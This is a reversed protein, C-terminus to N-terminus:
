RHVHSGRALALQGHDRHCAAARYIALYSIVKYIHGVVNYIGNMRTYLTFFLECMATVSVASFLLAVNFPQPKRMKIWLTAMTTLNIAILLFELNIKLSTLGQGPIFLHPLWDQYYIVLWNVIATLLVLVSFILYKTLVTM